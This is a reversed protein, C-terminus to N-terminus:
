SASPGSGSANGIATVRDGVSAKSSSTTVTSMNSAGVAQLIAVDDAVDYGVIRATYTRGTNPVVIKITTAGRIVHNNTLVEGSPPGHRYRRRRWGPLRADDQDRRRRVRPTHRQNPRLRHGLRGRAPAAHRVRRVAVRGRAAVVLHQGAERGGLPERVGERAHGRLEHHGAVRVLLVVPHDIPHAEDVRAADPERLLVGDLEVTLPLAALALAREEGIEGATLWATRDVAEDAPPETGVAEALEREGNGCIWRVPVTLEDLRELTAV